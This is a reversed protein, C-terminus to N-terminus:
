TCMAGECALQRWCRLAQYSNRFLQAVMGHLGGLLCPPQCALQCWGQRWSRGSMLPATRSWSAFSASSSRRATQAWAARSGWRLARQLGCRAPPWRPGRCPSCPWSKSYCAFISCICARTHIHRISSQCIVLGVTGTVFGIKVYLFM